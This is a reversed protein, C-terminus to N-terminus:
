FTSSGLRSLTLKKSTSEGGILGSHLPMGYSYINGTFIEGELYTRLDGSIGFEFGKPYTAPHCHYHGVSTKVPRWDLDYSLLNIFVEFSVALLALIV